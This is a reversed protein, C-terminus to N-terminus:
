LYKKGKLMRIIAIYKFIPWVEGCRVEYRMENAKFIFVTSKFNSVEAIEDINFLVKKKETAFELHDSYLRMEANEAIIDDINNNIQHLTVKPSKSILVNKENKWVESLEKLRDRQWSEWDCINDFQLNEGNFFGYSDLTGNLGCSCTVKNGSSKLTDSKGCHPCIYLVNEIGEAFNDGDYSIMEKRQVEYANVYLDRCIAEYIEDDTMKALIDPTYEAVMEAHVHGERIFKAWLPASLYGGYIRCNILGAGTDRLLQVTRPSIFGTRGNNTRVGEPFMAVSIGNILNRKIYRSAEAGSEGKKRPIPKQLHAILFGTVPKRLISEAAVFRVYRPFMMAMFFQDMGNTHNVLALFTKSQPTFTDAKYGYKHRIWPGITHQYIWYNVEMRKKGATWYKDSYNSKNKM